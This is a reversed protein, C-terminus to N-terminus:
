SPKGCKLGIKSMTKPRKDAVEKNKPMKKVKCGMKVGMSPNFYLVSTM